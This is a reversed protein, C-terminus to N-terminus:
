GRLAADVGAQDENLVWVETAKGDRMHWTEVSRGRFRTPKDWSGETLVVVHEDNALVDHVDLGLTGETLKALQAFFDFVHDKGKYEGSLPNNGPQHWVFDDTMLSSVTEMDGVLFAAYGKRMLGANPHEAM